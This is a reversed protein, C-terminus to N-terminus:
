SFLLDPRKAGHMAAVLDGEHTTQDLALALREGVLARVRAERWALVPAASGDRILVPLSGRAPPPLANLAARDRPPLAALRGAAPAASWGPEDTKIEFRGDWVAAVGPTLSLPPLSKRTFEGAERVVIVDEGDAMIRAGCLVATFAEGSRLRGILRDLRDGRPLADGGGACVLAMALTRHAIARTM